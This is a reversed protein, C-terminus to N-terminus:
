DPKDRPEEDDRDNRRRIRPALFFIGFAIGALGVIAAIALIGVLATTDVSM